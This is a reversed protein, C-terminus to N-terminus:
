PLNRRRRPASSNGVPSNASANGPKPSLDDLVEWAKRHEALAVERLAEGIRLAYDAFDKSRPVIIEAQPDAPLHYIGAEASSVEPDVQWGHAVLYAEVDVPDLAQVRERSLQFASSM